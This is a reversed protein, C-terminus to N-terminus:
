KLEKLPKLVKCIYGKTFPSSRHVRAAAIQGIRPYTLQRNEKFVDIIAQTHLDVKKSTIEFKRHGSIISICWQKFVALRSRKVNPLRILVYRPFIISVMFAFFKFSMDNIISLIVKSMIQITKPKIPLIAAIALVSAEQSVSGMEKLENNRDQWEQFAIQAQAKLDLGQERYSQAGKFKGDNFALEYNSMTNNYQNDLSQYRAFLRQSEVDATIRAEHDRITNISVTSIALYSSIIIILLNIFRYVKPCNEIFSSLGWVLTICISMGIALSRYHFTEQLPVYNTYSTGWGTIYMGIVCIFGICTVITKRIWYKAPHEKERIYKM